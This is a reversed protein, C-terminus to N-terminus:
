RGKDRDKQAAKKFQEHLRTGEKLHESQIMPRQIKRTEAQAQAARAAKDEAIVGRAHEQAAFQLGAMGPPKPGNM